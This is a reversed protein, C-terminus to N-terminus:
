GPEKTAEIARLTALETAIALVKAVSPRTGYRSALPKWYPCNVKDKVGGEHSMECQSPQGQDIVCQRGPNTPSRSASRDIDPHRCALFSEGATAKAIVDALDADSIRKILGEVDRAMPTDTM